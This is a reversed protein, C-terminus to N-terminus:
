KVKTHNLGGTVEIFKGLSERNKKLFEKIKRLGAIKGQNFAFWPAPNRLKFGYISPDRIDNFELHFVNSSFIFSVSNKVRKIAVKAAKFGESVRNQVKVVKGSSTIKTATVIIWHIGLYQGAAALAGHAMGSYVPVINKATIVFEKAGERVAQESVDLLHKKAKGINIQRKKATFKVKIM